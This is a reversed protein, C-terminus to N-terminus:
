QQKKVSRKGRFQKYERDMELSHHDNMIKTLEMLRKATIQEGNEFGFMKNKNNRVFSAFSRNSQRKAYEFAEEDTNFEENYDKFGKNVVWVTSM